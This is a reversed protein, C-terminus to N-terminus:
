MCEEGGNYRCIVGAINNADCNSATTLMCNMLTRKGGMCDANVFSRSARGDGLTTGAMERSGTHLSSFLLSRNAQPTM